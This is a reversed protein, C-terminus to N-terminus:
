GSPTPLGQPWTKVGCWETIEKAHTSPLNSRVRGVPAMEAPLRMSAAKVRAGVLGHSVVPLRDRIDNASWPQGTANAEAILADIHLITRPDAAHTATAMGQDRLATPTTM